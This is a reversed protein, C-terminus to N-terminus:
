GFWRSGRAGRRSSSPQSDLSAPMWPAAAFRETGRRQQRARGGRAPAPASGKRQAGGDSGGSVLLSVPYSLLGSRFPYPKKSPIKTM